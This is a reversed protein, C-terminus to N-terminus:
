DQPKFRREEPLVYEKDMGHMDTYLNVYTVGSEKIRQRASEIRDYIRQEEELVSGLQRCILGALINLAFLTTENNEQETHTKIPTQAM